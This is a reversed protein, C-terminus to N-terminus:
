TELLASRGRLSSLLGRYLWRITNSSARLLRCPLGELNSLLALLLGCCMASSECTRTPEYLLLELYCGATSISQNLVSLM